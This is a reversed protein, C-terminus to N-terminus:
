KRYPLVWSPKSFQLMHFANLPQIRLGQGRGGERGKPVEHDVLVTNEVHVVVVAPEVVLHVAPEAFSGRLFLLRTKEGERDAVRERERGERCTRETCSGTRVGGDGRLM